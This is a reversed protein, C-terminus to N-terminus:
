LVVARWWLFRAPCIFPRAAPRLAPALLVLAARGKMQGARKRHHRATTRQIRQFNHAATHTPTTTHTTPTESTECVSMAPTARPQAQQTNNTGNAFHATSGMM